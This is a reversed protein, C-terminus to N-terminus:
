EPAQTQTSARNGGFSGEAQPQSRRSPRAVSAMIEEWQPIGPDPYRECLWKWRQGLYVAGCHAEPHM